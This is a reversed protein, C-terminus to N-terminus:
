KTFLNEEKTTLYRAEGEELSEDLMIGAFSIRKLFTIKNGLSGFIRKIEHYKGETLTIYGSVKTIMKLKCPSVTYGDKLTVGREIKEVQGGLIEDAIEFYYVKETKSKPALKKHASVGDNTIIVLGVTDKDLRGCPFLGNRKFDNPLIDIVTKQATDETASVVGNPKNLMIYVFKKFDPAKGDLLIVDKLADVKVSPTKCVISNVTIRGKKVAILCEKRSLIASSSFLKDLREM